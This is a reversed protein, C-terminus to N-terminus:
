FFFSFFFPSLFELEWFLIKWLLEKKPLLHSWGKEMVSDGSVKPLFFVFFFRIWLASGFLSFVTIGGGLSVLNCINM